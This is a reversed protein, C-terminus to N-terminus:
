SICCASSTMTAPLPPSPSTGSRICHSAKTAFGGSAVKATLMLLDAHDATATKATGSRTSTASILTAPLIPLSPLRRCTHIGGTLFSLLRDCVSRTPPPVTSEMGGASSSVKMPKRIMSGTAMNGLTMTRSAWWSMWPSRVPMRTTGHARATVMRSWTRATAEQSVLRARTIRTTTSITRVPVLCPTGSPTRTTCRTCPSPISAWSTAASTIGTPPISMSTRTLSSIQFISLTSHVMVVSSQSTVKQQETRTRSTQAVAFLPAQPRGRTMPWAFESTCGSGFFHHLQVCRCRTACFERSESNAPHKFSSRM